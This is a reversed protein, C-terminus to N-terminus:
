MWCDIGSRRERPYQIHAIDSCIVSEYRKCALKLALVNAGTGTPVFFIKSSSGLQDNVLKEAKQTWPDQGYSPAYGQNADM